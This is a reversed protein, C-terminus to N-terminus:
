SRLFRLVEKSKSRSVPVPCDPFAPHHLQYGQANGTVSEVGGARVIYSRHCSIFGSPLGDNVKTLTNRVTLKAPEGSADLYFVDVYNRDSRLCWIHSTPLSVVPRDQEDKISVKETAPSSLFDASTSAVENGSTTKEATLGPEKPASGSSITGKERFEANFTAAGRSYRKLKIVYDTLTMAIILFFSIAGANHVFIGYTNWSPTGGLLHVYFYAVTIGLWFCISTFLIQKGVTWQQDVLYYRFFLGSSWFGVAVILGYGSLFLNKNKIEAEATGFPQFVILVLAIFVGMALGKLLVARASNNPVPYPQNLLM